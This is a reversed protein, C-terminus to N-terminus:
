WWIKNRHDFRPLHFPRPMSSALFPYLMKTRSGWTVLVNPLRPTSPIIINFHINFFYNILTHHIQSLILVLSLSGEHKMLDPSYRSWNLKQVFATSWSTLLLPLTLYFQGQPRLLWINVTTEDWVRTLECCRMKDRLVGGLVDTSM